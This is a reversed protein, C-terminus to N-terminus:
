LPGPAALSAIPPDVLALFCFTFPFAKDDGLGLWDKRRAVEAKIGRGLRPAEVQAIQDLFVPMVNGLGVKQVRGAQAFIGEFAAIWNRKADRQRLWQGPGNALSEAALDALGNAF